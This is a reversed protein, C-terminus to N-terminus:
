VSLHSVLKDNKVVAGPVFCTSINDNIVKTVVVGVGDIQEYFTKVEKEEAKESTAKKETM